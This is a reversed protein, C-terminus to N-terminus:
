DDNELPRLVGRLGAPRTGQGARYEDAARALRLDGEDRQATPRARAGVKGSYVARQLQHVSQGRNLLTHIERRFDDIAIYDCVFVTRLLRGLHEAARHLHIGRLQRGSASCRLRPPSVDRASRRRWACCNTGAANSPPWLCAGSPSGKWAMPSPSDVLCTCSENPWTGFGRACILAWCSPSPWRRIRTATRTSRSRHGPRPPAPTDARARM